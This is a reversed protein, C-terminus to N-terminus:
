NSSSTAEGGAKSGLAGWVGYPSAGGAGSLSVANLNGTDITSSFFRCSGDGMLGMAGGPHRSSPPLIANTADACCTSVEDTCSPANPPLVTNFAVREAQGDMYLVGFNAKYPTGALFYRGDSRTLCIAPTNGIGAVSHALAAGIPVQQAGATSIGISAKIHESMFITNSTGDTIDAIKVGIQSAFAGRNTTNDRIGNIQDGVSFAYSNLRIQNATNLSSPDSPCVYGAPQRDWVSWGCWACPGGPAVTPGGAGTFGTTGAADGAKIADSMATQEVFPLLMIFASLRGFNAHNRAASVVSTTTGGKRPPFSKFVDHYNHLALGLQKLNNTCQMRRAAERAAQVAPLLLAVLIGIIAIV